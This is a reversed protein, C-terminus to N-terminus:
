VAGEHASLPRELTVRVAAEGDVMTIEADVVSWIDAPGDLPIGPTGYAGSGDSYWVAHLLDAVLWTGVFRYPETPHGQAMVARMMATATNHTCM